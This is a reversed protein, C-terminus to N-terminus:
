EQLRTLVAVGYPALAVQESVSQDTLHEYATWPLDLVAETRQHNVVILIDQRDKTVRRCVQVGQPAELAPRVSSTQALRGVFADQAAADLYAGVYYVLGTRHSSVVMALQDDLWGNSPGYTAIKAMAGEDVVRLREAWRESVGSFWNGKVPVPEDLAYYEEVEVAVIDALLGPQRMALLANHEDKM